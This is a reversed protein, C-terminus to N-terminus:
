RDRSATLTKWMARDDVAALATWLAAVSAALARLPVDFAGRGVLALALACLIVVLQSPMVACALALIVSTSVFFAELAHFTASAGPTVQQGIGARLMNQWIPSSADARSVFWVVMFACVLAGATAFSSSMRRRTSLWAVILMQAVGESVVGAASFTRSVSYARLSDAFAIGVLWGICRSLAGFALVLQAIALVRTHAARLGAISGGVVVFLAATILIISGVATLQHAFAPVLMSIVGPAGFFLMARAVLPVKTARALDIAGTLLLGALLFGMAHAVSASVQEWRTIVADSTLGRLGPVVIAGLVSSVASAIASTRLLWAMRLSPSSLRAYSEPSLSSAPEPNTETDTEPV